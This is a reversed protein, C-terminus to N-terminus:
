DFTIELNDTMHQPWPQNKVMNIYIAQQIVQCEMILNFPIHPHTSVIYDLWSRGADSVLLDFIGFLQKGWFTDRGKEYIWTLFILMNAICSLAHKAQLFERDIFMHKTKAIRDEACEDHQDDLQATRDSCLM